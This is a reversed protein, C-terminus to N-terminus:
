EVANWCCVLVVGCVFLVTLRAPMISAARGQSEAVSAASLVVTVAMLQCNWRLSLLQLYVRLIVSQDVLHDEFMFQRDSHRLQFFVNKQFHQGHVWSRSFTMLM